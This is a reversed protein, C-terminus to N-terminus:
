NLLIIERSVVKPELVHNEVHNVHNQELPKTGPVYHLVADDIEEKPTRPKDRRSRNNANELRQGFKVRVVSNWM